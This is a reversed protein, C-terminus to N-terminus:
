RPFHRDRERFHVSSVQGEFAARIEIDPSRVWVTGILRNWRGKKYWELRAPEMSTLRALNETARKGFPQGREPTGIGALRNQNTWARRGVAIPRKEAM